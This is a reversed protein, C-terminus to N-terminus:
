GHTLVSLALMIQAAYYLPLGWAKNVISREVFRDRAVSVDSAAFTMAGVALLMSGHAASAAVALSTMIMIAALYAPVAFKYFSELQPWLWRLLLASVALLAVLAILLWMTDLTLSVFAAGFAVHALLFAAIGGLLLSSRLSLLMADGAWSLILAVLISQGYSTNGAGNVAAIAVFASSAAM